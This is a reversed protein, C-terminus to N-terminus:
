TRVQRDAAKAMVRKLQLKVSLVGPMPVLCALM